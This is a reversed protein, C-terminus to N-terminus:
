SAHSMCTNSKSPCLYLLLLPGTVSVLPYSPVNTFVQFYNHTVSLSAPHYYRIRYPYNSIKKTNTPDPQEPFRLRHSYNSIKKQTQQNRINQFGSAIHVTQSKRQKNTGATRSHNSKDNSVVLLSIMLLTQSVIGLSTYYIHIQM